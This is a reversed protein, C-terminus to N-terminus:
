DKYQGRSCTIYSKTHSATKQRQVHTTLKFNFFSNVTYKIAGHHTM